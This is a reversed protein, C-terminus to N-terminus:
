PRSFGAVWNAERHAVVLPNARCGEARVTLQDGRPAGVIVNAKPMCFRAMEHALERLVGSRDHSHREARIALTEECYAHVTSHLKQVNGVTLGDGSQDM